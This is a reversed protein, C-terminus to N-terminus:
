WHGGQRYKFGTGTVHRHIGVVGGFADLRHQTIGIREYYQCRGRYIQRVIPCRAYIQVVKIECAFDCVEAATMDIIRQVARDLCLTDSLAPHERATLHADEYEGRFLSDRVSRLARYFRVALLVALGLLVLASIVLAVEVRTLDDPEGLFTDSALVALLVLTPWLVLAMWAAPQSVLLRWLGRLLM